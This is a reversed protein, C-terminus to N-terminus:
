RTGDLDMTGFCSRTPGTWTFLSDDLDDIDVQVDRWELVQIEDNGYSTRVLFGTAADFLYRYGREHPRDNSVPRLVEIVDRDQYRITRTSLAPLDAAADEVPQPPLEYFYPSANPSSTEVPVVPGPVYGYDSPHYFFTWSRTGDFIRIPSGDLWETRYKTGKKLVRMDFQALERGDVITVKVHPAEASLSTTDLWVKRTVTGIITDFERRPPAQWPTTM